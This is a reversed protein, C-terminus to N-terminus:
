RATFTAQGHLIQTRIPHTFINTLRIIKFSTNRTRGVKNFHQLRCTSYTRPFDINLRMQMKGLLTHIWGHDRRMRRLSHFHRTMAGVMGPVGAVTELM